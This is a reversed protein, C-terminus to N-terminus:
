LVWGRLRAHALRVHPVEAQAVRPVVELAGRVRGAQLVQRLGAVAHQVLQLPHAVLQPGDAHPGRQLVDRQAAAVVDHPMLGGHIRRRVVVLLRILVRGEAHEVLAALDDQRERRRRQLRPVVPAQPQEEGDVSGLGVGVQGPERRRPRLVGAALGARPPALHQLVGQGLDEAGHLIVERAERLLVGVRVGAAVGADREDVLGLQLGVVLAVGGRVDGRQLGRPAQLLAPAAEADVAKPAPVLPRGAVVAEAEVARVAAGRLRRDHAGGPVARGLVGLAPHRPRARVLPYRPTAQQPGRTGQPAHERLLSRRPLVLRVMM